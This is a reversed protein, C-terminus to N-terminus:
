RKNFRKVKLRKDAISDGTSEVDVQDLDEEVSNEAEGEVSEGEEGLAKEKRGVLGRLRRECRGESCSWGGGRRSSGWWTSRGWPL